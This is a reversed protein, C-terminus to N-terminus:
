TYCFYGRREEGGGIRNGREIVEKGKMLKFYIELM